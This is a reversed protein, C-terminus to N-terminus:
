PGFILAKPRIRGLLYALERRTSRFSWLNVVAGLKLAGLLSLLLERNNHVMLAVDDGRGVGRSALFRAVRNAERNLEHFTLSIGDGILAPHRPWLAAHKELVSPVTDRM